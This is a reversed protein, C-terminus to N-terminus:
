ESYEEKKFEKAPVGVFLTNDPVDRTVVSGAGTRAGNGLKVPAVLMTDSGIFVDSGIITPHKKEGDYNCTITGAGINVNEAIQADGLYSFHGMKTGLGLYSNKVEGFNGMHVNDALHAGKRLHGFPGIDVNNEVIANELVSSFIKCSKGIKVDRIISNPGITCSEGIITNGQLYTNPYIVTDKGITVGYEIYTRDPDIMTVGELMWTQNIKQRLLAEAEALHVRTNIGIALEQEELLVSKISYGDSVAIEILDTLYYEGKPSLQIRELAQWLWESSFCYVSANLEQINLIEPAAQAEEIIAQVAGDAGRVVRGFGRPDDAIITLMTVPGPKEIHTDVVRQLLTPSLLPMDALIVLIIGPEDKLIESTAQVAHATGLQPEQIVFRAEAGIRQEIKDAGYGVVVVPKHHTIEKVADLSYQLMPRGLLPHLVKPTDTKMRTGKGAALIITNIEM